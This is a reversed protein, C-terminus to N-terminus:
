ELYSNQPTFFSGLRRKRKEIELIKNVNEKELDTLESEKFDNRPTYWSQNSFYEHLDKSKFRYGYIAYIENRILRLKEPSQKKLYSLTDSKRFWRRTYENRKGQDRFFLKDVSPFTGWYLNEENIAINDKEEPELNNLIWIIENKKRHWGDPKINKIRKELDEENKYIVKVTVTSIRNKWNSGTALEYNLSWTSYGSPTQLFSYYSNKVEIISKAPFIMEWTYWFRYDVMGDGYDRIVEQKKTININKGNILTTFSSLPYSYRAPGQENGPFGVTAEIERDTTNKFWFTCHVYAERFVQNARRIDRPKIIVEEAIMEIENSIQPFVNKGFDSLISDDGILLVNFRILVFFLLIIQSFNKNM